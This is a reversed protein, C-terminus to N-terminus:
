FLVWVKSVLVIATAIAMASVIHWKMVGEEMALKSALWLALVCMIIGIIELM